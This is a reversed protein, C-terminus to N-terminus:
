VARARRRERRRGSPANAADRHSRCRSRADHASGGARLRCRWRELCLHTARTAAISGDVDIGRCADEIVVVDFGERRADEASYRVCFDFALGALFVRTSAASACIAPSDPRPRAITRTSRRTPISTAIIARACSSSQMPSRCTRASSPARRERCAIIRGSSRRAMPSRSPRSLAERGSAHLRVVSPRRPHWDQTLVVHEFGRPWRPQDAARGRRRAPVALAGGPVSTTRSTSSWCSM